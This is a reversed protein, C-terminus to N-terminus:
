LLLGVIAAVHFCIEIGEFPSPLTGGRPMMSELDTIDTKFYDLRVGHRQKMEKAHDAWNEPKPQIDLCVIRPAGREALMSVLKKGVM